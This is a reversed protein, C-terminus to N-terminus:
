KEYAKEALKDLIKKNKHIPKLLVNIESAIAKKLDLPHLKKAKFMKEVEEYKKFKLDGGYKKDRKVVFKKKQDEKLVMIVHKLFAM